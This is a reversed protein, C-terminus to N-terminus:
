QILSLNRFLRRPLIAFLDMCHDPAPAPAMGALCLVFRRFVSDRAHHLDSLGLVLTLLALRIKEQV